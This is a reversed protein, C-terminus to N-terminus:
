MDASTIYRMGEVYRYTQPVALLNSFLSGIQSALKGNKSDIESGLFMHYLRGLRGIIHCVLGDGRFRAM